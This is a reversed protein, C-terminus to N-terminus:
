VKASTLHQPVNRVAREETVKSFRTMDADIMTNAM